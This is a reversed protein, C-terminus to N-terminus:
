AKTRLLKLLPFTFFTNCETKQWNYYTPTYNKPYEDNGITITWVINSIMKFSLHWSLNMLLLPHTNAFISLHIIYNLTHKERLWIIESDSSERIQSEVKVSVVILGLLSVNNVLVVVVLLFQFNDYKDLKTQLRTALLM